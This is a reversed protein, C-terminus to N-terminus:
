KWIRLSYWRDKFHMIQDLLNWFWRYCYAIVLSALFTLVTCIVILVLENVPLLRYLILFLVKYCVTHFLYIYFTLSSLRFVNLKVQINNFAIFVLISALVITPSFFSVYPNISYYSFGSNLRFLWTIVFLSVSIIILFMPHLIIKKKTGPTKYVQMKEYIVNGILYYSLYSFVVGLSYSIQYHSYAQSLVAVCLLVVATGCYLRDPIAKKVIIIFPTLLYLGLLMHMFWLNYYAGTAIAKLVSLISNGDVMSIPVFLVMALLAPLFIKYISKCYFAKYDANREDHLIFAGSVMVFTPVSFRTIVNIFHNVAEDFRLTGMGSLPEMVSANVHLLIVAITSLLRLLDIGNDRNVNMRKEM